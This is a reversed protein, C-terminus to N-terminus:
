SFVPELTFHSLQLLGDLEGNMKASPSRGRKDRGGWDSGRGKGAKTLEQARLVMEIMVQKVEQDLQTEMHAEHPHLKHTKNGAAIGQIKLTQCM